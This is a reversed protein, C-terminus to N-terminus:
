VHGLADVIRRRSANWAPMLAAVVGLPLFLAFILMLNGAQLDVKLPVRESFNPPVYSMDLGNVLQALLISSLVGIVGGLLALLVGEYSFLSIVQRRHMGLARLTGIERTREMVVMGMTNVVSTISITLVISFIFLFIMNFLNKIPQYTNSMEIWTKVEMDMGAAQLAKEIRTRTQELADPNKLMVLLRSAGGTDLLTQAQVFPILVYKDNTAKAGTNITDFDSAM